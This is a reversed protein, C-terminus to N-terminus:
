QGLAGRLEWVVKAFFGFLGAFVVLALSIRGAIHLAVRRRQWHHYCVRLSSRLRGCGCSRAWHRAARCATCTM